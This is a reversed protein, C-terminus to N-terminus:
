CSYLQYSERLTVTFRPKFTPFELQRTDLTSFVRPLSTQRCGVTVKLSVKRSTRLLIKVPHSIINEDALVLPFCLM